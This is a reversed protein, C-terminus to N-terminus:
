CMKELTPTTDKKGTYLCVFGSSFDFRIKGWFLRNLQEVSRRWPDKAIELCTLKRVWMGMSFYTHIIFKSSIEILKNVTFHIMLFFLRRVEGERM